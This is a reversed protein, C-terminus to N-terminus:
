QSMVCEAEPDSTGYCDQGNRAPSDRPPVDALKVPREPPRKTVYSDV